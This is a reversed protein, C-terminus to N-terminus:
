RTTAVASSIESIGVSFSCAVSCRHLWGISSSTTSSGRTHTHPLPYDADTDLTKIYMARCQEPLASQLLLQREYITGPIDKWLTCTCPASPDWRKTYISDTCSMSDPTTFEVLNSKTCSSDATNGIALIKM